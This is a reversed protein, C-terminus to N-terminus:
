MISHVDRSKDTWYKTYRRPVIGQSERPLWGEQITPVRVGWDCSETGLFSLHWLVSGDTYVM